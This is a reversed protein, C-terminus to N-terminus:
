DYRLMTPSLQYREFVSLYAATLEDGSWGSFQSLRAVNMTPAPVRRQGQQKLRRFRLMDLNISQRLPASPNLVEKVVFREIEPLHGIKAELEEMEEMHLRVPRPDAVNEQMEDTINFVQAGFRRETQFHKSLLTQFKNWLSASLIKEFELIPKDGLYLWCEYLKVLSVAYMDDLDLEYHGQRHFRHALRRMIPECLEIMKAFPPAGPPAVTEDVVFFDRIIQNEMDNDLTGTFKSESDLNWKLKFDPPVKSFRLSYQGHNQEIILRRSPWQYNRFTWNCNGEDYPAKIDFLKQLLSLM